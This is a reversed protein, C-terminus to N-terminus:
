RTLDRLTLSEDLTGTLADGDIEVTVEVGPPESTTTV